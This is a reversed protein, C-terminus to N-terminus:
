IFDRGEVNPRGALMALASREILRDFLAHSEKRLDATKALQAMEPNDLSQQSCGLLFNLPVMIPLSHKQTKLRHEKPV